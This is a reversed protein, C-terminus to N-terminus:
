GSFLGVLLLYLIWSLTWLLALAVGLKWIPWVWDSWLLRFKRGYPFLRPRM